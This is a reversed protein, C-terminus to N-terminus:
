QNVGNHDETAQMFVMIADDGVADALDYFGDLWLEYSGGTGHYAFLLPKTEASSQYDAPLQLYFERTRGESEVTQLGTTLPSLPTCWEDAPCPPRTLDDGSPCGLLLCTLFIIILGRILHM